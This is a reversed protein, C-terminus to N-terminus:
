VVFVGLIGSNWSGIQVFLIIGGLVLLVATYLM